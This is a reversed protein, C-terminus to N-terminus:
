WSSAQRPPRIRWLLAAVGYGGFVSLLRDIINLPIRSAVEVIALPLNKRLLALKFLREPSPSGQFRPSFTKILATVLGGFISIAICMVFSLLLLVVFTNIATRFRSNVPGTGFEGTKVARGAGFRLEAPFLRIFFVVVLAVAANCFSYLLEPWGYFTILNALPNTLLGTLAGCLLGGYFTMAVTFLTDMFLPIGLAGRFLYDGTLVNLVAGAPCLFLLALVNLNRKPGPGTKMPRNYFFFGQNDM